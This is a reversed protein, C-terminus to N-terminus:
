LLHTEIVKRFCPSPNMGESTRNPLVTCNTYYLVRYQLRGLRLGTNRRATEVHYTRMSYIAEKFTRRERAKDVDGDQEAIKALISQHCAQIPPIFAPLEPIRTENSAIKAPPSGINGNSLVSILCEQEDGDETSGQSSSGGATGEPTVTARHKEM